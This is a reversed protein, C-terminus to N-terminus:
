ARLVDRLKLRQGTRAVGRQYIVAALRALVVATALTLVMSLALEWNPVRGSAWRIPMVLPASLPFMSTAVAVAGDPSAVVVGVAILYSGILLANVPLIASNVETVKDVLAALGAFLFAYVAIGLVFWVVALAIDPAAGSPLKSSHSTWLSLGAPIAAASIQLLALLGVGLVTGVLLQTPRLVALLVESIRTSKETAVATAISTGALILALYLVIGVVFGVGARKPDGAPGVVVQNPAPVAELVAIQDPRLGSATLADVTSKARVAGSVLAPFPGSDSGKVFLQETTGDVVLGADAKGDKVAQAVAATDAAVTYHVTFDGAKAAAGLQAVLAPPAMGVTALTYETGGSGLLRPILVAVVGGLLMLATVVRWSRSAIGEAMARAAVLRTGGWWSLTM